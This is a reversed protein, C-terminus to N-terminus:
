LPSLPMHGATGEGPLHGPLGPFLRMVLRDWKVRYPGCRASLPLHGQFGPFRLLCIWRLAHLNHCLSRVADPCRGGCSGSSGSAGRVGEGSLSPLFVQYVVRFCRVLALPCPGGSAPPLRRVTRAEAAPQSSSCRVPVPKQPAAARRLQGPPGADPLTVDMCAPSGSGSSFFGTLRPCVAPPSCIERRASTRFQRFLLAGSGCSPFRLCRRSEGGPVFFRRGPAVPPRIFTLHLTHHPVLGAFGNGCCVLSM